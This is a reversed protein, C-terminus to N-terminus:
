SLILSPNPDSVRARARVGGRARDVRVTVGSLLVHGAVGPGVRPLRLVELESEDRTGLEDQPLLVVLLSGDDEGTLYVVAQQARVLAAAARLAACLLGRLTPAASLDRSIALVADLAGEPSTAAVLSEGRVSSLPTAGLGAELGGAAPPRAAALGAAHRPPSGRALERMPPALRPQEERWRLLALTLTAGVADVAEADEITFSEPPAAGAAAARM